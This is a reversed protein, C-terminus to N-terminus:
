RMLFAMLSFTILSIWTKGTQSASSPTTAVPPAQTSSTPLEMVYTVAISETKVWFTTVNHVYTTRFIATGMFGQPPVWQVTTLKKENDLKHTAASGVTGYCDILKGDSPLRFTGIPKTADTKDFAMVLFGKYTTVDNKSRLELHLASDMIAYEGSPIETQFPSSTVLLPDVGHGPTMTECAAIPAGDPAADIRDISASALLFALAVASTYMNKNCLM